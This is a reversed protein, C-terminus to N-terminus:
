FVVGHVTARVNFANAMKLQQWAPGDRVRESAVLERLDRRRTTSRRGSKVRRAFCQCFPMMSFIVRASVDAAPKKM